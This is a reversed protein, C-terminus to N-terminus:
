AFLFVFAAVGGLALGVPMNRVSARSAQTHAINKESSMGLATPTEDMSGADNGEVVHTGFGDKPSTDFLPSNPDFREPSPEVSGPEENHGHVLTFYGSYNVEGNQSIQLAYDKGEELAADPTWTFTGGTADSTLTRVEHLNASEGKRLMLTTPATPDGGSWAITAAEGTTMVAPWNTFALANVVSAYALCAAITLTRLSHM